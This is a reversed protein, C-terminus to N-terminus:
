LHYAYERFEWDTVYQQYRAVEHRKYTVFANVFPLGLQEILETDAELADLAEGLSTPLKPAKEPDYGYGELPEPPELGDRMGLGAAALLGATILYPNASADGLRLELRSARGREPPIRVMASRNDLGWDILWPALTDPGFRKYSNITPNAVAALAPAHQLIGGVAHRAVESLGHPGEPDDFLATRQDPSWM